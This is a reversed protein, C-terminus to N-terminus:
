KMKKIVQIGSPNGNKRKLLISEARMDIYLNLEPAIREQKKLKIIEEALEIARSPNNGIFDEDTYFPSRIGLESLIELEKTIRKISIKRWKAQGCYKHQIACFSCKGWSCGRSAETRIIGGLKRIKSVFDREPPPCEALNLLKRDTFIKKGRYVFGLNPVNNQLLAYRFEDTDKQYKSLYKIIDLLSKEGEGIVCISNPYKTLLQDTAFTAILDGFIVLPKNEYSISEIDKMISDIIRMSGIKTSLGIVDYFLMDELNPM